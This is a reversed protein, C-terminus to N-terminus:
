EDKEKQENDEDYGILVSAADTLDQELMKKTEDDIAEAYLKRLVHDLEAKDDTPNTKM